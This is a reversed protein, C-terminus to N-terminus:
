AARAPARDSGDAVDAVVRGRHTEDDWEVIWDRHRGGRCRVLAVRWRAWGVGADGARSPAAAVHWRTVAATLGRAALAAGASRLVLAGSGGERAALQLRRAADLSLAGVEGAVAAFAGSRLGEEMAWLVGTGDGARALILSEPGLGFAALGPAYLDDRALCWLVPGGEALRALAHAAFGLASGRDLAVVENLAGLPLGGWPLAEDLATIALPAVAGGRDLAPPLGELRRVRERLEDFATAPSSALM